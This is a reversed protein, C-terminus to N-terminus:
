STCSPWDEDRAFRGVINFYQVSPPSSPIAVQDSGPLKLVKKELQLPQSLNDFETDPVLVIGRASSVGTDPLISLRRKCTLNGIIQANEEIKAAEVLVSISNSLSFYSFM